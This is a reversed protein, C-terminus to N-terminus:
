SMMWNKVNLVAIWWRCIDRLIGEWDLSHMGPDYFYDRLMRWADRYMQHFELNPWISLHLGDTRAINKELKVDAFLSLVDKATRPTVKIKDYLTLIYKGDTSMDVWQLKHESPAPIQETGDSPWDGIAFLTLAYGTPTYTQLLLSPDDALQCVIKEYNGGM